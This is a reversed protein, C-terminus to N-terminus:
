AGFAEQNSEIITERLPISSPCVIKCCGCGHCGTTLINDIEMAKIRKFIMQPDLGVPCVTRCEGCNICNQLKHHAGQSKSLAAIAYCTKGVPEDLFMVEKGSIPSGTIICEPKESFGGCQAIVESIRTGIRVKMIQPHRIAAGGVAVYRELIPKKHVVADYAAALVAPGLILFSGLNLEEKKEYKRLTLELERKNRQPYRSSTLVMSSPVGQRDAESRLMQGLEREPYSVAILIRSVKLCAKAVISAGLIVAKLRDKCMAYDAVLWPDDFVCRVVLTLNEEKRAASIMESLPKGFNEMETIGNESIIRQLDYGSLGNWLFIDEKRGLKEFAGEMKIIYADNNIDFSDRWSIRRIIRGPVTSHVNVAGTGSGSARGILMGERVNEGISVVPYVKRVNDGLTIVSFSPLFANVATKKEPATNDYFTLGGRPFSYVKM